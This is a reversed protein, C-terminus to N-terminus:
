AIFLNFSHVCVCVACVDVYYAIPFSNSEIQLGKLQLKDTYFSLLVLGTFMRFIRTPMAERDMLIIRSLKSRIAQIKKAGINIVNEYRIVGNMYNVPGAKIHKYSKWQAQCLFAM